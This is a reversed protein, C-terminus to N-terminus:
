PLTAGGNENVLLSILVVWGVPAWDLELHSHILDKYMHCHEGAPQRGIANLVSDDGRQLFSEEKILATIVM